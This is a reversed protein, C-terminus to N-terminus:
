EESETPEESQTAQYEEVTIERYTEPSETDSLIIETGYIVGNTLVKGDDATIVTRTITSTTM